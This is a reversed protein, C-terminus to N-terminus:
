LQSTNIFQVTSPLGDKIRLYGIYNGEPIDARKVFSDTAFSSDANIPCYSYTDVDLHYRALLANKGNYDFFSILGTEQCEGIFPFKNSCRKKKGLICFKRANEKTKYTKGVEIVM